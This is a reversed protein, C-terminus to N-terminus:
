LPYNIPHKRHIDDVDFFVLYALPCFAVPCTNTKKTGKSTLFLDCSLYENREHKEINM